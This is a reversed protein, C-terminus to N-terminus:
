YELWLHVKSQMWWWGGLDEDDSKQEGEDDQIMGSIRGVSYGELKYISTGGIRQCLYSPISRVSPLWVPYPSGKTPLQWMVEVGFTM